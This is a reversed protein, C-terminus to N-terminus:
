DNPKNSDENKSDQSKTENKQSICVMGQKGLQHVYVAVGATLIGQLCANLSLGLIINCLIIGLVCLIYPISWNPIKPTNKLILGIIFLVFSVIYVNNSIFNNIDM